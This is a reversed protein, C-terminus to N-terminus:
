KFKRETKLQFAVRSKNKDLSFEPKKAQVPFETPIPQLNIRIYNIEFIKEPLIM